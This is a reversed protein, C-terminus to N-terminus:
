GSEGAAAPKAPVPLAYWDISTTLMESEGRDSDTCIMSFVPFLGLLLDPRIKLTEVLLTKVLVLLGYEPTNPKCGKTAYATAAQLERDIQVLRLAPCKPDSAEKLLGLLANQTLGMLRHAM